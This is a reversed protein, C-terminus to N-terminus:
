LPHQHTRLSQPFLGMCWPAGRVRHSWRIEVRNWEFTHVSWKFMRSFSGDTATFLPSFLGADQQYTCIKKKSLQNHSKHQSIFINSFVYVMCYLGLSPALSEVADNTGWLSGVLRDVRCGHTLKGGTHNEGARIFRPQRWSWRGAFPMFSDQRQSSVGRRECLKNEWRNRRVTDSIGLNIACAHRRM